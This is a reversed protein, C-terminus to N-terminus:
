STNVNADRARWWRGMSSSPTHVLRTTATQATFRATGQRRAIFANTEIHDRRRYRTRAASRHRDAPQSLEQAWWNKKAWVSCFRSYVSWSLGDSQVLAREAHTAIQHADRYSFKLTHEFLMEVVEHMIIYRDIDYRKGLSELHVPLEYDIYITDGRKNCSGVYPVDHTRDIRMSKIVAAAAEDLVRSNSVFESAHPRHGWSM